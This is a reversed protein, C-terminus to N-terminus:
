TGISYLYKKKNLRLLIWVTRYQKSKKACGHSSKKQNKDYKVLM